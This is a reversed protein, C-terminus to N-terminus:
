FHGRVSVSSPGLAAEASGDDSSWFLFGGLALGVGAVIASGAYVGKWSEYSDLASADHESQTCVSRGDCVDQAAASTKVFSFLAVGASATGVGLAIWAPWNTARSTAGAPAPEETSAPHANAALTTDVSETAPSSSALPTPHAAEARPVLDAVVVLRAGANASVKRSLPQYGPARVEVQVSGVDVPIPVPLPARGVLAGEVRVEAGEVNCDVQLSAVQGELSEILADLGSVRAQLEPSAARQFTRLLSLAEATHGLM